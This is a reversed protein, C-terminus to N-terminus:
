GFKLMMSTDGKVRRIWKKFYVEDLKNWESELYGSSTPSWNKMKRDLEDCALEVPSLDPSQKPWQM